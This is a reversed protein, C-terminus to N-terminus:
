NFYQPRKVEIGYEVLASSLDAMSLTLKQEKNKKNQNNRLKCHQLSDSVIDHIFKQAAIGILKVMRPDNTKMGAQTLFHNIVDEPISSNFENPTLDTSM